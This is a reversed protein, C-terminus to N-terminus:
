PAAEWWPEKPVTFRRPAQPPQCGEIVSEFGPALIVTKTVPGCTNRLELADRRDSELVRARTFRERTEVELVTGRAGAWGNNTSIDLGAGAAKELWGWLKGARMKIRRGLGPEECVMTAGPSLRLITGDELQLELAGKDDVSIEEGLYVTDGADAPRGGGGPGRLTAGGEVWGVEGCRKRDPDTSRNADDAIVIKFKEETMKADRDRLDWTGFRKTSVGRYKTTYVFVQWEGPRRLLAPKCDPPAVEQVGGDVFSTRVMESRCVAGEVQLCPYNVFRCPGVYEGPPYSGPRKIERAGKAPVPCAAALAAAVALAIRGQAAM